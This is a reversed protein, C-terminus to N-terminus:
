LGMIMAIKELEETSLAEFKKLAEKRRANEARQANYRQKEEMLEAETDFYVNEGYKYGKRDSNADHINLVYSGGLYLVRYAKGKPRWEDDTAMQIGHKQLYEVTYLGNKGYIHYLTDKIAHKM